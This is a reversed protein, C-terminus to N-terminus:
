GSEKNKCDENYIKEALKDVDSEYTFKREILYEAKRYYSLQQQLSLENWKTNVIKM